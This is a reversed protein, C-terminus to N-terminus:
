AAAARLYSDDICFDPDAPVERPLLGAAKQTEIVKALGKRNISMDRTLANTQTFHVWAREAQDLPAPLERAAIAAAATRNAYLWETGRLLARLFRVLLDRNSAAWESNANVSVFQWEPVYDIADGLNNM